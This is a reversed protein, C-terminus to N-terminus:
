VSCCSIFVFLHNKLTYSIFAPFNIFILPCQAPTSAVPPLCFQVRLITQPGFSHKRTAMFARFKGRQGYFNPM